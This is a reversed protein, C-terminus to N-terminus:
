GRERRASARRRPWCLSASRGGRRQPKARDSRWPAVSQCSGAAVAGCNPGIRAAGPPLKWTSGHFRRRASFAKIGLSTAVTAM